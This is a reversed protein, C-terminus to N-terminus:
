AKLLNGQRCNIVEVNIKLCIVRYRVDIQNMYCSCVQLRGYNM